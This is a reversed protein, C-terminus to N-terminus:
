LVYSYWWFSWTIQNCFKSQGTAWLTLGLLTHDSTNWHWIKLIYMIMSSCLFYNIAHNVPTVTQMKHM